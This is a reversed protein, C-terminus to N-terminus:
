DWKDIKAKKRLKQAMDFFFGQMGLLMLEGINEELLKMNKEEKKKKHEGNETSKQIRHFVTDLNM